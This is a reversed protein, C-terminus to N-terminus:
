SGGREILTDRRRAVLTGDTALFITELVVLTM